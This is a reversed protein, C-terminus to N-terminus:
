YELYYYLANYIRKLGMVQSKTDIVIIYVDGVFAICRYLM